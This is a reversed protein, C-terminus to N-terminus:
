YGGGFAQLIPEGQGGAIDIRVGDVVSSRDVGAGRNHRLIGVVDQGLFSVRVKINTMLDIATEEILEREAGIHRIQVVAM